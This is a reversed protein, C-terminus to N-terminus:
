ALSTTSQLPEAMEAIEDASRSRRKKLTSRSALRGRRLLSYFQAPRPNVDHTPSLVPASPTDFYKLPERSWIKPVTSLFPKNAFRRAYAFDMMSSLDGVM